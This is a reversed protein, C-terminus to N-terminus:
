GPHGSCEPHGDTHFSFSHLASTHVPRQGTNLKVSYNNTQGSQVVNGVANNFIVDQTGGDEYFLRITLSDIQIAKDVGNHVSATADTEYDTNATKNQPFTQSAVSATATGNGCDPSTILVTSTAPPSSSPQTQTQTPTGTVAAPTSQTGATPASTAPPAPTLDQTQPPAAPPAETTTPPAQEPNTGFVQGLVQPKGAAKTSSGSDNTAFHGVAFGGAFVGIAISGAVIPSPLRM